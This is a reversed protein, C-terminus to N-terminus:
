GSAEVTWLENRGDVVLPQIRGFSARFSPAEFLKARTREWDGLSPVEVEQVVTDFTGSLDTMVRWHGGSGLEANMGGAMKTFEAALAGGKGFQAHFVTRVIIM